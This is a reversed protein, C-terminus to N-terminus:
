ATHESEKKLKKKQGEAEKEAAHLEVVVANVATAATAAPASLVEMALKRKSVGAAAQSRMHRVVVLIVSAIVTLSIGVVQTPLLM